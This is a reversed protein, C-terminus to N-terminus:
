RCIDARPSLGCVLKKLEDVEALRRKLRDIEKQQAEIQAQQEKVANVLIVGIRDYKVGEVQGSANTTTLLPEVRNVEEAVLGMDAMGGNKWSFSVPRLKRILELGPPFPNINEKYRRSSGCSGVEGTNGNFCLPVNTGVALLGIKLIGGIATTDAQNTRGIQITNSATVVVDSGIATAYTLAGSVVGSGAGIVTNHNGIGNLHGSNAGVFTNFGGTSTNDGSNAGFFTNSTGTLNVLGSKWGFFSNEKGSTSANGAMSGFFSNSIGTNNAGGASQGFFSNENGTLNSAGSFAGFFSNSTGGSNTQGSGHGFFANEQGGINATGSNFGFFSNGAGAVNAQGSGKGFFSNFYGATNSNGSLDGFFSNGTGSSNTAAGAGNGFFSNSPGSTITGTNRGVFTNSTGGISFVRNGGINYQTTANVINSSLTGGATGNGSINFDSFTQTGAGNQIYSPSGPTPARADSMRADGTLVYQNAALGGLQLANTSTTANIASIANTATTASVATAAYLSQVAYPSSGVSQRPALPTFTGAGATRVHIELFRNAGPFQSGFDLKVAFTGNAVAVANRTLTSGIQTGASLSDFLAFEFDYNGNAAAAGDKLSGQYTFETTQAYTTSIFCIAAFFVGLVLTTLKTM